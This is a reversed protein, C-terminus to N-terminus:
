RRRAPDGAPEQRDRAVQADATAVLELAVGAAVHQRAVRGPREGDGPLVVAVHAPHGHGEGRVAGAGHELQRVVRRGGRIVPVAVAGARDADSPLQAQGAQGFVDDGVGATSGAANAAHIDLSSPM